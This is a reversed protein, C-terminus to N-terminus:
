HDADDQRAEAIDFIAAANGVLPHGEQAPVDGEGAIWAAAAELDALSPQLVLIDAVRAPDLDGLL